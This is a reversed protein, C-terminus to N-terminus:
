TNTILLKGTLRWLRFRNQWSDPLQEEVLAQYLHRLTPRDKEGDLRQLITLRDPFDSALYVYVLHNCYSRDYLKATAEM